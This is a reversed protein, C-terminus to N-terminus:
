AARTIRERAFPLVDRDLDVEALWPYLRDLPQDGHAIFMRLLAPQADHYLHLLAGATSVITRGVTAIAHAELKPLLGRAARLDEPPTRHVLIRATPDSRFVHILAALLAVGSGRDFPQVLRVEAEGIKSEWWPQEAELVVAVRPGDIASLGSLAAGLQPAPVLAISWVSV